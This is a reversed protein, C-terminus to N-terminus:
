TVGVEYRSSMEVYLVRSEMFRLDAYSVYWEQTYHVYMYMYM